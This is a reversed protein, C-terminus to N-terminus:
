QQIFVDSLIVFSAEPNYWNENDLDQLSPTYGVIYPTSFVTVFVLASNILSDM